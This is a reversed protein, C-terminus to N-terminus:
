WTATVEYCNDTANYNNKVDNFTITKDGGQGTDNNLIYHISTHNNVITIDCQRMGNGADVGESGHWNGVYKYEPTQNFIYIYKATSSSWKFRIKDGNEFETKEKKSVTLTQTTSNYTFKYTGKTISFNKDGQGTSGGCLFPTDLVITGSAGAYGYADVEVGDSLKQIVFEGDYNVTVTATWTDSSEKNLAKKSGAEDWANTFINGHIQYTIEPDKYGQAEANTLSIKSVDTRNVNWYYSLTGSNVGTKACSTINGNGAANLVSIGPNPADDGSAKWGNLAGPSLETTIKAGGTGDKSISYIQGNEGKFNFILYLDEASTKGLYRYNIYDSYATNYNAIPTGPWTAVPVREDAANLTYAFVHTAGKVFFKAEQTDKEETHKSVCRLSLAFGKNDGYDVRANSIQTAEGYIVFDKLWRGREDKEFGTATTQSWYYGVCNDGAKTTNDFYMSKSFYVNLDTGDSKKSDSAYYATIYSGMNTTVFKSSKRIADWDTSYPVQYGPPCLNAYLNPETGNQKAAYFYAGRGATTGHQANGNVQEIYLEASHAGINRDLWRNNGIKVVGYYTFQKSNDYTGAVAHSYDDKHFFGTHYIAIPMEKWDNTGSPAVEVMLTGVGYLDGAEKKMSLEIKPGEQNATTTVIGDDDASLINIQANNRIVPDSDDSISFRWKYTNDNPNVFTVTYKYTWPNNTNEGYMVPFHFGEDRADGNNAEAEVGWVNNELFRFYDAQRWDSKQTTGNEYVELVASKVVDEANFDRKWVVPVVRSLNRWRVTINATQSGVESTRSFKAEVRYLKGPTSGTALNEGTEDVKSIAGITLWSKSSIFNDAKLDIDDYQGDKNSVRVYFYESATANGTVNGTHTLSHSVGLSNKGDTVINYVRPSRDVINWELAGGSKPTPNAAAEETTTYGKGKVDEIVFQYYHNPNLNLLNEQEFDLRYYYDTGDFENNKVIVYAGSKNTTPHVFVPDTTTFSAPITVRTPTNGLIFNSNDTDAGSFISGENASGLVVFPLAEDLKIMGDADTVLNGDNDKMGKNVSVKAASRYLAVSNFALIDNLSASGSMVLYDTDGDTVKTLNTTLPKIDDKSSLNKKGEFYAVDYAEPANALMLFSLNKDKRLKADITVDCSTKTPDLSEVQQLKGAGDFILLTLTHVTNEDTARTQIGQMEPVSYRFELQGDSPMEAFQGDFMDDSCSTALLMLGATMYSLIKKM